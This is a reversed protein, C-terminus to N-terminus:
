FRYNFGASMSTENGFGAETNFRLKENLNFDLGALVGIYNKPKIRKSYDNEAKSVYNYSFKPGCYANFRGLKKSIIGTLEWDDNILKYQDDNVSRKEPHVSIHHFACVVKLDNSDYCKVRLGYGGAFGTNMDLREKNEPRYSINGIGLKGDICVLKNIGFSMNAYYQISRLHRVSRNCNKKFIVYQEYGADWQKKGPMDPGYSPAALAAQAATLIGM